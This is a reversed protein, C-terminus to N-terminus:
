EKREEVRLDLAGEFLETIQRWRDSM